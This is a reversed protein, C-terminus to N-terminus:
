RANLREMVQERTWGNAKMTVRIDEESVDSVEDDETRFDILVDDQNIGYRKALGGYEKRLQNHNKEQARYLRKSRGVFDKRQKNTLREGVLVRNYSQLVRTPVSGSNQATAFEGERVTSGPDLVKMFNFILALDGAPSPDQASARIRDYADRVKVFTTSQGTFEKRLDRSSKFLEQARESAAGVKDPVTGAPKGIAESGEVYREGTPSTPDHVRKLSIPTDALSDKVSRALGVAFEPYYSDYEAPFDKNSYGHRARENLAHTYAQQKQHEPANMVNLGLRGNLEIEHDFKKRGAESTSQRLDVFAKTTKPDIAFAGPIDNRGLAQTLLNASEEKQEQILRKQKNQNRQQFLNGLANVMPDGGRRQPRSGGQAILNLLNSDYAGM